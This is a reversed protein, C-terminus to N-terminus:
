RRQREITIASNQSTSRTLFAPDVTGTSSPYNVIIRSTVGLLGGIAPSTGGFMLAGNVTLTGSPLTGTGLLDDGIWCVGNVTLKRGIDKFILDEGVVLAPYGPKATITVAGNRVTLSKGTPVVLTGNFNITGSIDSDNTVYFVNGPNTAPNAGILKTSDITGSSIYNATFTGGNYVYQGSSIYKTINLDSYSPCAKRPYAPTPANTTGFLLGTVSTLLGGFGGDVRVSGNLSSTTWTLPLTFTANSSFAYRPIYRAEVAVVNRTSRTIANDTTGSNATVDVNYNFKTSTPAVDIRTVRSGDSLTLSPLTAGPNYYSIGNTTTMLSTDANEPYMLYYLALNAGTQTMSEASVASTANRGAQAQMSASSLLAFGMIACVAMLFVVLIM